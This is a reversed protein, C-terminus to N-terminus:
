KSRRRRVAEYQKGQKQQDTCMVGGVVCGKSESCSDGLERIGM